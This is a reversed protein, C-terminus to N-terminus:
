RRLTIDYMVPVGAPALTRPNKVKWTSGDALKAEAEPKPEAFPNGDADLVALLLQQDGSQILSDSQTGIVRSSYPLVVGAATVSVTTTAPARPNSPDYPLAVSWSLTILAGDERLDAAVERADQAYDAM